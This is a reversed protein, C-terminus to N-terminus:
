FFAFELLVGLFPYEDTKKRIESVRVKCTTVGESADKEKMRQIFDKSLYGIQLYKYDNKDGTNMWVAIAESDFPNDPEPRLEILNLEDGYKKIIAQRSSGDRNEHTVGAVYTHLVMKPSEVKFGFM